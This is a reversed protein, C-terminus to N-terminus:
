HDLAPRSSVKYVLCVKVRKSRGGLYSLNCAWIVVVWIKLKEINPNEKAGLISTHTHSYMNVM